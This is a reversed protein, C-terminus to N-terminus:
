AVESSCSGCLDSDDIVFQDALNMQDLQYKIEIMCYRHFYECCCAIQILNSSIDIEPHVDHVPCLKKELFKKIADAPKM